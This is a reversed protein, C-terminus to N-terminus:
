ATCIMSRDLHANFRTGLCGLIEMFSFLAAAASVITLWMLRNRLPRGRMGIAVAIVGAALGLIILVGETLDCRRRNPLGIPNSFYLTTTEGSQRSGRVSDVDCRLIPVPRYVGTTAIDVSQQWVLTGDAGSYARLLAEGSTTTTPGSLDLVVELPDGDGTEVLSNLCGPMTRSWLQNDTDADIMELQLEQRSLDATRSAVLRWEGFDTITEIGPLSAPSPTLELGTEPDIVMLVSADAGGATIRLV